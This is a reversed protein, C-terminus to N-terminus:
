VVLSPGRRPDGGKGRIKQCMRCFRSGRYVRTNEPTYEHGHPCHTREAFSIVPEIRGRRTRANSRERDCARCWRRGQYTRTNAETYEHGRPCHTKGAHFRGLHNHLRRHEGATMVELNDLANNSKDGDKHHVVLALDVLLGADYAVVRHEWAWGRSDAVPHKPSVKIQVYRNREAM